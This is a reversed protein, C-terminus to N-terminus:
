KDGKEEEGMKKTEVESQYLERQEDIWKWIATRLAATADILRKGLDRQTQGGRCAAGGYGESAWELCLLEYEMEAEFRDNTRHYKELCSQCFWVGMAKHTQPPLFASHVIAYRPQPSECIMCKDRPGEKRMRDFWSGEDRKDKYDRQINDSM